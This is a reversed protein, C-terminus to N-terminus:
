AVYRNCYTTASSLGEGHNVLVYTCVYPPSIPEGLLVRSFLWVGRICVLRFLVVRNFSFRVCKELTPLGRRENQSSHHTEASM